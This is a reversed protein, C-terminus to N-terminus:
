VCRFGGVFCLSTVGVTMLNSIPSLVSVAGFSTLLIPVTFITACVTCSLASTFVALAKRVLKPAGAFPKELAHQLKGAFLILGLTSSTYLLCPYPKASVLGGLLLGLSRSEKDAPQGLRLAIQVEDRLGAIHRDRICM